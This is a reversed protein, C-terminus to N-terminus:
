SVMERLYRHFDDMLIVTETFRRELTKCGLVILILDYRTGNVEIIKRSSLCNGATATHGTKIGIYGDRM